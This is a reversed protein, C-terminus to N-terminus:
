DVTSVMITVGGSAFKPVDDVVQKWDPMSTIDQFAKMSPFWLETIRYYPPAKGDPGPLLRALEVHAIGKIAYVMPMHTEAYYKEFAAPDKPAGYLVTLKIFDKIESARAAGAAFVGAAVAAVGLQLAARRPTSGTQETM